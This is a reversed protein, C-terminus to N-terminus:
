TRAPVEALCRPLEQVFRAARAHLELVEETTLELSYSGFDGHVLFNRELGIRLFAKISSELDPDENLRDKMAQRFDDGFLSFFKNANKAEWDFLTHYQRALAKNKVLSVVHMSNTTSEVHGLIASTITAEFNSAASLLLAKRYVEELAIRLSTEGQSDLVAAIASLDGSLRDVSSAMM